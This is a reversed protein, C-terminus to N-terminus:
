DENAAPLLVYFITGAGLVSTAWIKGGYKEVIKRCTALGIGSGEYEHFRQFPKFIGEELRESPIGIGNDHFSIEWCPLDQKARIHIVPKNDPAQFKIANALLNQFLQLYHTNGGMVVPLDDAHIEAGTEEIKLVLNKRAASLIQNLDIGHPEGIDGGARAFAILDDLLIGMRRTADQIIAIYEQAETNQPTEELLLDGFAKINRLPEKLDHSAVSAFQHLEANLLLLKEEANKKESIDRLFASFYQKGMNMVPIITLEVPFIEGNKRKAKIETRTNLIPGEGVKLYHKLGEEHARHYESPIILDPLFSGKAEIETYDFIHVAQPNWEIVTNNTDITIVADLAGRLTADLRAKESNANGEAVELQSVLLSFLLFFILGVSIGRMVVNLLPYKLDAIPPMYAIWVECGIYLLIGIIGFVRFHTDNGYFIYAAAVIFFISWHGSSAATILTFFFFIFFHTSLFVLKALSPSGNKNLWLPLIWATATLTMMFGHWDGVVVLIVSRVITLFLALISTQNIIRTHLVERATMEPRVGWISISDWFNVATIKLM